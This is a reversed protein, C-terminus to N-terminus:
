CFCERVLHQVLNQGGEQVQEGGRAGWWARGSGWLGGEEEEEELQRVYDESSDEEEKLQQPVCEESPDISESALGACAFKTCKSEHLTLGSCFWSGVVM